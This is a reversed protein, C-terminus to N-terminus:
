ASKREIPTFIHKPAKAWVRQNEVFGAHINTRAFDANARLHVGTGRCCECERGTCGICKEDRRGTIVQYCKTLM